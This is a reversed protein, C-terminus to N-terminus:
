VYIEGEGGEGTREIEGRLRTDEHRAVHFNAVALSAPSTNIISGDMMM